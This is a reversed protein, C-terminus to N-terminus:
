VFDGLNDISTFEEDRPSVLLVRCYQVLVVLAGDLQRLLATGGGLAGTVDIDAVEEDLVADIM